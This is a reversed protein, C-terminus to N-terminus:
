SSPTCRRRGRDDAQRRDVERRRPHHLDDDQQPEVVRVEVRAVADDRREQARQRVRAARLGAGFSLSQAARNFPNFGCTWTAGQENSITVSTGAAAHDTAASTQDGSGSGTATWAVATIGALLLVLLGRRM